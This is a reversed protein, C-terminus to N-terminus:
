VYFERYTPLELAALRGGIGCGCDIGIKDKHQQDYWIEAAKWNVNYSHLQWTPVHGFIMIKDKYAPCFPFSDEMWVLENETNDPVPKRTNAGAHTFIYRGTMFFLPLQQMFALINHLKEASLEQIEEYMSAGGNYRYWNFLNDSPRTRWTDSTLMEAIAAQAFQEHNGKILVAGRQQLKRCTEIIALNENGRDVMDGAIILLDRDPDYETKRLLTLLKKNDAHPDSVALIRDVTRM